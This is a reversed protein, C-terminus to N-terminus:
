INAGTSNFFTKMAERIDIENIDEEGFQAININTTNNMVISKNIQLNNNNNNNIILPENNIEKKIIEIEDIKNKLNMNENEIKHYNNQLNNYNEYLFKMDSKLKELDDYNKKSKCCKIVHRQLSDSRAFTKECYICVCNNINPKPEIILNDMLFAFNETKKICKSKIISTDKKCTKKKNKIHYLFHSKKNFEKFCSSCIHVVM